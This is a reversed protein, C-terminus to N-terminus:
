KQLFLKGCRYIFNNAHYHLHLSRIRLLTSSEMVVSIERLFLSILFRYYNEIPLILFRKCEMGMCRISNSPNMKALSLGYGGKERSCKMKLSQFYM